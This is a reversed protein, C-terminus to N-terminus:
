EGRQRGHSNHVRGLLRHGNGKLLDALRSQKRSTPDPNAARDESADGYGAPHELYHPDLVPITPRILQYRVNGHSFPHELVGLITFYNGQTPPTFLKTTDNVFRCSLPGTGNALYQSYAADYTDADAVDDLTFIGENVQYGLPMYVHDQMNEGVNPNDLVTEVGAAALITSNGIGSLELLQPSGFSGATLLVEQNANIAYSTRNISFSVSEASPTSSSTNFNIKEVLANTYVKLNSRDKVPDLYATASYSRSNGKSTDINTLITYGGLAIQLRIFFFFPPPFSFECVVKLRDLGNLSEGPGTSM